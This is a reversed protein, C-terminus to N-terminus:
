PNQPNQLRGYTIILYYADKGELHNYLGIDYLLTDFVFLDVGFFVRKRDQMEGNRPLWCLCLLGPVAYSLMLLCLVVHSVLEDLLVCALLALSVCWVGDEREGPFVTMQWVIDCTAWRVLLFM